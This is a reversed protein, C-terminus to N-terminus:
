RGAELKLVVILLKRNNESLRIGIGRTDGDCARKSSQHLLEINGSRSWYWDNSSDTASPTSTSQAARSAAAAFLALAGSIAVQAQHRADRLQMARENKFLTISRERVEVIIRRQRIRLTPADTSRM